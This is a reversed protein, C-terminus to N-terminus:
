TVTIPLPPQEFRDTDTGIVKLSELGPKLTVTTSYRLFLADLSLTVLVLLFGIGLRDFPVVNLSRPYTSHGKVSKLTAINKSM